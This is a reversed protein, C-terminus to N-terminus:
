CREIAFEESLRATANSLQTLPRNASIKPKQHNRRIEEIKLISPDFLQRKQSPQSQHIQHIIKCCDQHLPKSKRPFSVLKSVKPLTVRESPLVFRLTRLQILMQSFSQYAPKPRKSKPNFSLVTSRM